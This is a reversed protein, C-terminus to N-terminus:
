TSAKSHSRPSEVLKESGCSQTILLFAGSGRGQATLVTVHGEAGATGSIEAYGPRTGM